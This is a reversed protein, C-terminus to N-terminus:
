KAEAQQEQERLAIERDVIRAVTRECWGRGKPLPTKRHIMKVAIDAHSRGLRHMALILAGTRRAEPDPVLRKHGPRGISRYGYPAQGCSRGEAKLRRAVRRFHEGRTRQQLTLAAELGEIQKQGDAMWSFIPLDLLAMRVGRSTWTRITLVADELNSFVLHSAAILLVDGRELAMALHHGQPRDSLRVAGEAEDDEFIGGWAYAEFREHYVAEM